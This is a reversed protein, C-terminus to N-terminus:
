QFRPIRYTRCTGQHICKTRCHSVTRRRSQAGEAQLMERLSVSLTEARSGHSKKGSVRRFPDRQSRLSTPQWISSIFRSSRGSTHDRSSGRAHLRVRSFAQLLGSTVRRSVVRCVCRIARTVRLIVFRFNAGERLRPLRLAERAYNTKCTLSVLILSLLTTIGMTRQIVPLVLKASTGRSTESHVRAAARIEALTNALTFHM